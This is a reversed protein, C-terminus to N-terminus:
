FGSLHVIAGRGQGDVASAVLLYGVGDVFTMAPAHVDALGLLKKLDVLGLLGGSMDRLSLRSLGDDLVCMRPGCSAAGRIVGFSEDAVGPQLKGARFTETATGEGAWESLALLVTPRQGVVEWTQRGAVFTNGKRFGVWTTDVFGGQMTMPWDAVVCGSPKFTVSTVKGGASPSLAAKGNPSLSLRAGQGPQDCREIAGSRRVLVSRAGGHSVLLDGADDRSLWTPEGSLAEAEPQAAVPLETLKCGGGDDVRFVRARGAGDVTLLRNGLVEISRWVHERDAGVPGPAPVDCPSAVISHHKFPQPAGRLSLAAIPQAVSADPASVTPAVPPVAVSGATAPASDPRSCGVVSAVAAVLLWHPSRTPFM